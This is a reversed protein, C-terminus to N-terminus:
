QSEEELQNMKSFGGLSRKQSPTKVREESPARRLSAKIELMIM